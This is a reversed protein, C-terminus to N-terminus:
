PQKLRWSWEVKDALKEKVLEDISEDDADDEIDVFGSKNCGVLGISLTWWVRKMGEVPPAHNNM